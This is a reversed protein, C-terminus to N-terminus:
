HTKVRIRFFYTFVCCLYRFFRKGQGQYWHRPFVERCIIKFLLFNSERDIVESLKEPIHALGFFTSKCNFSDMDLGLEKWYCLVVEYM